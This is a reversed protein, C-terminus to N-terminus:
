SSCLLCTVFLTRYQEGYNKTKELPKISELLKRVNNQIVKSADPMAGHWKERQEKFRLELRVIKQAAKPVRVNIENYNQVSKTAGDGRKGKGEM